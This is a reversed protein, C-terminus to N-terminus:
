SSTRCTAAFSSSAADENAAGTVLAASRPIEVQLHNGDGPAGRSAPLVAVVCRGRLRHHIERRRGNQGPLVDVPSEFRKTRVGADNATRSAAFDGSGLDVVVANGGDGETESRRMDGQGAYRKGVKRVGARGADGQRSRHRAFPQTGQEHEGVADQGVPRMQDVSQPVHQRWVDEQRPAECAVAGVEPAGGDSRVTRGRFADGRRDTEVALGQTEAPAAVAAPLWETGLAHHRAGVAVGEVLQVAGRREIKVLAVEARLRGVQRAAAEQKRQGHASRAVLGVRQHAGHDAEGLLLLGQEKRSVHRLPADRLQHASAERRKDLSRRMRAGLRRKRPPGDSASSTLQM